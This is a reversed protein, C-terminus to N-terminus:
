NTCRPDEEKGGSEGSPDASYPKGCETCRGDVIIGTCTGDPCLVRNEIDFPDSQEAPHDDTEMFKAGCFMCFRGVLPVSRGCERCIKGPIEEQCHPCDM